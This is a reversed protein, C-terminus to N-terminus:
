GGHEGVSSYSNRNQLCIKPQSLRIM